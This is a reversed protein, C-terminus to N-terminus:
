TTAMAELREQLRDAPEPKSFLFGQGLRCGLELLVTCQRVTEVGEAVVTLGLSDGIGVVARILARYAPHEDLGNVFSRDIKLESIPLFPLRSIASFGTGFDDISLGVGLQRIDRGVELSADDMVVSETVEITLRDAALGHSALLDRLLDPLGARFSLPSFNVSIAPVRLGENDWAALQRCAERLSWEDLEAVQGTQEALAIFRDPPIPGRRPDDWRALAEVGHLELTELDVQPQYALHVQGDALASRLAYSLVLRDQALLDVAPAAFHYTGGSPKAQSLASEARRLLDQGEVADDPYLAIGISASVVVTLDSLRLPQAVTRLLLDARRTAAEADADPMVLAFADGGLAFLADGAAFAGPQQLREAVATLLRDGDAFGLSENVDAFRDIDLLVLALRRVGPDAVMSTLHPSLSARNRLGTLPDYHTLLSIREADDRREMAIRCLPLCVDVIEHHEPGPATGRPFYFAFTGIVMGHADKIPSSWCAGFEAPLPLDQYDAWLPDTRVDLVLVPEGRFAATGCSGASEGVPIGDVADCFDRPLSPAAVPRLRLDSDVRLVTAAFGPVIEEVRQCLLEAVDALQQGGAVADLVEIRVEALRTSTASMM